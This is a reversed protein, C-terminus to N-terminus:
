LPVHKVLQAVPLPMIALLLAVAFLAIWFANKRRAGAVALILTALGAYQTCLENFNIAHRYNHVRPNGFYNPVVFPIFSEASFTSTALFRESRRITAMRETHPMWLAFPILVPAALAAALLAAVALRGSARANRWLAFPVAVMALHLVSEPHGGVLVCWTVFVCGAISRRTARECLHDIALLLLPLLATVNTLPFLLFAVNFAGFGFAIAAVIAGGHSAGLRRAFLYTGCAALLLKASASFLPWAFASFVLGIVNVPYLLALQMNEWLPTGAGAFRDLFPWEGQAISSRAAERLPILQLVVDNLLFNKNLYGPPRLAKWPEEGTLFDLPANTSLTAWCPALWVVTLAAFLRFARRTEDTAARQALLLVFLPPLFAALLVEM